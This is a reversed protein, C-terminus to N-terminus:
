RALDMTRIREIDPWSPQVSLLVEGASWEPTQAYRQRANELLGAICTLYAIDGTSSGALLAARLTLSGLCMPLFAELPMELVLDVSHIPDSPVTVIGDDIALTLDVDGLPSDTIILRWDFTAGAVRSTPEAM